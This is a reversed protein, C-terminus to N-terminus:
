IIRRSYPPPVPGPLHGLNIAVIAVTVVRWIQGRAIHLSPLRGPVTSNDYERQMPMLLPVYRWRVQM